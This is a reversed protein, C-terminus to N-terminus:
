TLEDVLDLIQHHHSKIIQLVHKLRHLGSLHTSTDGLLQCLFQQYTYPDEKLLKSFHSANCLGESANFNRLLIIQCNPKLILEHSPIGNLTLTNLFDEQFYQKTTDLTEDFSFYRVPDG